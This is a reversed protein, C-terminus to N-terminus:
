RGVIPFYFIKGPGIAIAYRLDSGYVSPDTSTIQVTYTASAPATWRLTLSLDLGTSAAEALQESGDANFIRVRLDAGGSGLSPLLLIIQQGAEAQFSVWDEDDQCLVMRRLEGPALPGPLSDPSNNDPESADNVCAGTLLTAAEPAASYTSQNNAVDVASIRFEYAGPQGVFWASRASGAPRTPWDTWAPSGQARYQIEFHDIDTEASMWNLKVATSDVAAPLPLMAVSPANSDPVLDKLLAGGTGGGQNVAMAYFAGGSIDMTPNFITWWGDSGNVDSAIKTWGGSAWDRSHWYFDVRQILSGPEDSASAELIFPVLPVQQNSVPKTIAVVPHTADTKGTAVSLLYAYDTGGAGPHDWAKVRIYYTGTRPLIAQIQSDRYRADPNTPDRDDNVALVDRGNTDFLQIFSDLPNLPNSSKADVTIVVPTGGAASFKYYDSDGRPCIRSDFAAGDLTLPTATAPTENNLDRSCTSALTNTDISVDDIAWGYLSNYADDVTDFHFRVRVIQGSTLSGLPIDPSNPWFAATNQADESLPAPGIDTFPGGDVSLQVRRQDWHQGAFTQGSYQLGEVGSFFRLHLYYAGSSTIRIPPSTLDGARAAASNYSSGDNFIWAKTPQTSLDPQLRNADGWRWLGSATWDGPGSEMDFSASGVDVQGHALLSAADVTFTLTSSNSVSGSCTSTGACATVTWKYTGAPLSGVSWSRTNAADMSKVVAGGKELKATFLTAGRGATWSLVLSDRSTPNPPNPLAASNRDADPTNGPFTLRPEYLSPNAIQSPSMVWLASARQQGILNDALNADDAAFTELRGGPVAASLELPLDYLVARVDAGVQISAAANDGLAGLQTSTYSGAPFKHCFGYFGPESYLAVEDDAPDCAPVQPTLNTGCPAHNLIQRLGTLPEAWNGALNWIRVALSVPGNPVKAACVDVSKSFTGNAYDANAISKWTGDYNVMVEVKTVGLADSATGSVTLTSDSLTTWAAPAALAGSPIQTGQNGSQLYDDDGTLKKGDPGVSCETGYSPHNVTEACTRPEGGNFPVDSFLIRVSGNWIYNVNGSYVHFHLHHDTSYGTDDTNGIYQGQPVFTGLALDDPISNNALHYYLQYTVPTTSNDQLILYNTCGSDGNSCSDRRAAVIGGKAALLPFMRNSGDPNWFDYAYRCSSEACSNYDLFHGVSGTIKIRLATSYPLKYGPFTTAAAANYLLNNPSGFRERLDDTILENPLTNLLSGMTNPTEFSIDWNGANPLIGMPNRAIAIGPERGIIDGTQADRQALWVVATRGDQSYFIEQVEVTNILFGLVAQGQAAVARQVAQRIAYDSDARAEATLAPTNNAYFVLALSFALATMSLSIWVRYLTKM